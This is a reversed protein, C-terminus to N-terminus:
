CVTEKELMNSSIRPSLPIEPFLNITKAAPFYIDFRTGWGQKTKLAIVGKHATVIGHVVALGLGTGEDVPKTTFFPDFIKAQIGKPIGTGNDTISLRLYRGEHLSLHRSSLRKCVTIGSTRIRIKGKGDPSSQFANTVLNVVVQQIQNKDGYIIPIDDDIASLLHVTTPLGARLLTISEEIAGRVDLERLDPKADQHSFFLVQNVITKSHEAAAQIREITTKLRSNEHTDMLALQTGGLIVCLMNNFDHAIGGALTGLSDLKQTQVLQQELEQRRALELELDKNTFDLERKRMELQETRQEIQSALQNFAARLKSVEDGTASLSSPHLGFRGGLTVIADTLNKIPRVVTKVIFFLMGVSLIISMILLGLIVAKATAVATEAAEDAGDSIADATEAVRDLAAAAVDTDRELLETLDDALKEAELRERHTAFLQKEGLALNRWQELMHKIRKADDKDEDSIAFNNLLEVHPLAASYLENFERNVRDLNIVSEEALYEGATDQMEIILRQLKLASEVMPYNQDFLLGLVRNIDGASAGALELRDGEEEAKAMEAENEDAFEDLAITLKKGAQDFAELKTAGESKKQLERVHARIMDNTHNTFQIRATRAIELEAMLADDDILASLEEYKEDFAGDINKLERKLKIIESLEEDAVIEEAVNTAQFIRVIIDDSTEVTPAAVDSIYNLTANIRNVSHLGIGGVFVSLVSISALSAVLKTSISHRM